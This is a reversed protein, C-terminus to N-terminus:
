MGGENLNKLYFNYLDRVTEMNKMFKYDEYYVGTEDEIFDMFCVASLSDWTCIDSKLDSDMKIEKRACIVNQIKKLFKEEDMVIKPM